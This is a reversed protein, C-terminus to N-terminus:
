TTWGGATPRASCRHVTLYTEVLFRSASWTRSWTRGRSSGTTANGASRSSASPVYAVVGFAVFGALALARESWSAGFRLVMEDSRGQGRHSAGSGWMWPREPGRAEEPTHRTSCERGLDLGLLLRDELSFVSCSIGRARVNTEPARSFAEESVAMVDGVDDVLLSM